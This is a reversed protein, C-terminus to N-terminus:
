ETIGREAWNVYSYSSCSVLQLNAIYWLFALM